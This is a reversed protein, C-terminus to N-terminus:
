GVRGAERPHANTYARTPAAEMAKATRCNATLPCAACDPADFRCIAQGLRKMQAFLQLLGEADRFPTSATVRESATRATAAPGVFGLRVLVRAVHTDVIFVRMRLTSACLTKTSVHRGVGPLRELWALADDVALDALWDLDVAGREASIMRLAAPLQEAKRDAYTVDFITREIEAPAADALDRARPWRAGLRRYAAMSVADPTRASILSKVMQGIPRRRQPGVLTGYARTLLSSWRALDDEVFGFADQM